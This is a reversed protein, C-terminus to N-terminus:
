INFDIYRGAGGLIFNKGFKKEFIKIANEGSCHTPTIYKIGLSKLEEAIKEINNLSEHYLHFGGIVYVIEKNIIKMSRKVIDVIGPHSCGVVLVAGDVTDIIMSEEGIEGMSGTSYIGNEIQLPHRGVVIVEKALSKLDNILRKSFSEPLVITLDSNEELVTDLGGIHDWHPHSLFLLSIDQLNLNFKKINKLLVRGNSGTDFLINKKLINIYCSFGWLSQFDNTYSYNDFPIYFKITSLKM